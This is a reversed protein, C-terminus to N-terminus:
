ENFAKSKLIISRIPEKNTVLLALWLLTTVVTAVEVSVFMVVLLYQAAFVATTAVSATNAQIVTGSVYM